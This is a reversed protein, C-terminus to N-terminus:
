HLLLLHKGKQGGNRGFLESLLLSIINSAGVQSGGRHRPERPAPHCRLQECPARPSDQLATADGNGQGWCGPFFCGEGVEQEAKNVVLVAINPSTTVARSSSARQVAM